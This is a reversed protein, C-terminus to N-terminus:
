IEVEIWDTLWKVFGRVSEAASADHDDTITQVWYKPGMDSPNRILYVRYRLTEPKIRWEIDPNNLMALVNVGKDSEWSNEIRIGAPATLINVKNRWQIEGGNAWHIIEKHWKRPKNM